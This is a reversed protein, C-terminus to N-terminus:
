DETVRTYYAGTIMKKEADLYEARVKHDGAPLRIEFDVSSDGKKYAKVLERGDAFTLRVYAIPLAKGGGMGGATRSPRYYYVGPDNHQEPLCGDMPVEFELPWRRVQLLVSGEEKTIFNWETGFAKGRAIPEQSWTSEKGSEDLTFWLGEQSLVAAPLEQPNAANIEKWFQARAERLSAVVDPHKASMDQQQGPDLKIAYLEKDNILRWKPTLVVSPSEKSPHLLMNQFSLFFTRSDHLESPMGQLLPQASIGDWDKHTRDPQALQCLDVLTPLLDHGATLPDINRPKGILKEPGSIFLPVRHGGEYMSCKKGRMGASYGSDPCDSGNDTLFIILTNQQLGSAKLFEIMDGMNQDIRTVSAYFAAKRDSFGEGKYEKMWERPVNWDFHPLSTALYLFFPKKETQARGIFQKAEEFYIDTCYGERKEWKGNRLFHDNVRDNGWYDSTAGQGGSGFGFWFDFGRDMPRFPYNSGLHWKGVLATAYGSARFFEPMIVEESSLNNRQSLTRTVGTRTPMRGTMLAARTPACYPAVHFDTFRVSADHLADLSPTKIVKNGHCGLDGYGQDDTMVILVNPKGHLTAADLAHCHWSAAFMFSITLLMRKLMLLRMSFSSTKQIMNRRRLRERSTNMKEEIGNM